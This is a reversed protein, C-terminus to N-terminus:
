KQGDGVYPTLPGDGAFAIPEESIWQQATPDFYRRDHLQLGSEEDREASAFPEIDDFTEIEETVARFRNIRNGSNDM